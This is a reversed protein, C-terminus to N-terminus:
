RGAALRPHLRPGDATSHCADHRVGDGRPAARCRAGESRLDRNERARRGGRPQQFFDVNAGYKKIYRELAPVYDKVGFLVGGANMFHIDINKLVGRRFWADGSLYLAKQPAGACKIPMPPQTFLARGERMGQVLEWTYPALDYRYNSTVATAAGADGGSGRGTGLRAEPRPLRRAPRIEGGPLWRAGGRQGEARLSRRRVQDLQVGRPILSGMTKATSQADFIRGGGDDLWAPLLSHRRPRDVRDRPRSARGSAPPSRSPGGAGAGVIVVDFKADGTDTPTKGGNAIRRAVREHRLGCGEDCRSDGAPAAPRGRGAVVADGVAHGTRCYAM